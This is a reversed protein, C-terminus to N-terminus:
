GVVGCSRRDVTDVCCRPASASGALWRRVRRDRRRAAAGAARRDCRAATLVAARAVTTIIPLPGRRRHHRPEVAEGSLRGLVIARRAKRRRHAAQRAGLDPAVVVSPGTAAQALRAAIAKVASLRELPLGVIAELSPTHPAVVILRDIRVARLLGGVLAAALPM